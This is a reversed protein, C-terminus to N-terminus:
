FENSGTLITYHIPNTRNRDNMMPCIGRNGFDDEAVVAVIHEGSDWGRMNINVWQVPYVTDTPASIPYTFTKNYYSHLQSLSITRWSNADWILNKPMKAVVLEIDVVKARGLDTCFGRHAIPELSGNTNTSYTFTGEIFSGDQPVSLEYKDLVLQPPYMDLMTFVHGSNAVNPNTMITRVDGFFRGKFRLIIGFEKKGNLALEGVSLNKILDFLYRQTNVVTDPISIQTQLGAGWYSGPTSRQADLTGGFGLPKAKNLAALTQKSQQSDPDFVYSYQHKDDHFRGVGTLKSQLPQTELWLGAGPSYTLAKNFENFALWYDFEPMMTTDNFIQVSFRVWPKGITVAPFTKDNADSKAAVWNTRPWVIMSRNPGAVENHLKIEVRYPEINIDDTYVTTVGSKLTCQLSAYKTGNGQKLVWPAIKLTGNIDNDSFTKTIKDSNRLHSPADFVPAVIGATTFVVSDAFKLSQIQNFADKVVLTCLSDTTFLDGNNISFAVGSSVFASDINSPEGYVLEDKFRSVAVIRYYYVSNQIGVVSHVMVSDTSIGHLSDAVFDTPAGNSDLEATTYLLYYLVGQKRQAELDNWQVTVHPDGPMYTAKLGSIIPPTGIEVPLLLIDSCGLMLALAVLSLLIRIVM